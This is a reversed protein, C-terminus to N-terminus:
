ALVEVMDTDPAYSLTRVPQGYALADTHIVFYSWDPDPASAATVTGAMSFAAHWIRTGVAVSDFRVFKTAPKRNWKRTNAMNKTNAKSMDRGHPM